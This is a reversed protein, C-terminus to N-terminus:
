DEEESGFLKALWGPTKQRGSKTAGPILRLGACDGVGMEAQRYCYKNELEKRYKDRNQESRSRLEKVLDSEAFAADADALKQLRASPGTPPSPLPLPISELGSALALRTGMAPSLLLAGALLTRRSNYVTTRLGFEDMEAKVVSAHMRRLGFNLVPYIQRPGNASTPIMVAQTNVHVHNRIM